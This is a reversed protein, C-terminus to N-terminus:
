WRKHDLNNFEEDFILPGLANATSVVLALKSLM